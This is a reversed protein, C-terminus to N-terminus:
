AAMGAQQTNWPVRVRDAFPSSACAGWSRLERPRLGKPGPEWHLRSGEACTVFRKRQLFTIAPGHTFSSMTSSGELAALCTGHPTQPCLQNQDRPCPSRPSQLPLLLWAPWYSMSSSHAHPPPPYAALTLGKPVTCGSPWGHHCGWGVHENAAPKPCHKGLFCGLGTTVAWFCGTYIPTQKTRPHPQQLPSGHHPSDQVLSM